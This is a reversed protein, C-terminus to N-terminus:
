GITDFENMNVRDWNKLAYDDFSCGSVGSNDFMMRLIEFRKILDKRTDIDKKSQLATRFGKKYADRLENVYDAEENAFFSGDYQYPYEKSAVENLEEESIPKLLKKVAEMVENFHEKKSKILYACYEITKPHKPALDLLKKFDEAFLEADEPGSAEWYACSDLLYQVKEEYEKENIEETWESVIDLAQEEGDCVLGNDKYAIIGNYDQPSLIHFSHRYGLYIAKRGDRTKYPKDYYANEFLNEM